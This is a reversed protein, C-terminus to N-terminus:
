TDASPPIESLPPPCEGVRAVAVGAARIMCSNGYTNGDRGCVPAYEKTCGINKEEVVDTKAPAHLWESPFFFFYELLLMALLTIVVAITSAWSHTKEKPALKKKYM